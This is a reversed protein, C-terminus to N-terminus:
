DLVAGAVLSNKLVIPAYCVKVRSSRM